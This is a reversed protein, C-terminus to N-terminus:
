TFNDHPQPNVLRDLFRNGADCRCGNRCDSLGKQKLKQLIKERKEGAWIESFDSEYLNGYTFEEQDYFLNCPLVDGKSDILSIFPLGFCETYNNGENIRKITDRRFEIKFNAEFKLNNFVGELNKESEPTIILKKKNKPHDSYPKVSLYNPGIDNLREVLGKAEQEIASQPVMLFQTGITVELNNKQKLEASNSINKMLIEFQGKSVGHIKSYVEPTGADISFKIWSLYPLCQKQMTEDFLVGNTTLAVDLGYEKAKRIFLSLDKHLTPEGEGGFMISSVGDFYTSARGNQEFTIKYPVSPHAMDKLTKLMVEKDIDRKKHNMFDLACFICRQNCRATAGIEIHIPYCDDLERWMASKHPHLHIKHGDILTSLDGKIKSLKM